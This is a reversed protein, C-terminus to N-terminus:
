ASGREDREGPPVSNPVAVHGPLEGCGEPSGDVGGALVVIFM